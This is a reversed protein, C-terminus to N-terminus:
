TSKLDRLSFSYFVTILYVPNEDISHIMLQQPLIVIQEHLKIPFYVDTVMSGM